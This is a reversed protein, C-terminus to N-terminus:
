DSFDSLVTSSTKTASESSSETESNEEDDFSGADKDGESAITSIPAGTLTFVLLTFYTTIRKFFKM